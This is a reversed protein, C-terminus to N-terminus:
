FLHSESQSLLCKTFMLAFWLKRQVIFLLITISWSLMSRQQLIGNREQLRHSHRGNTECQVSNRRELLILFQFTVNGRRNEDATVLVKVPHALPTLKQTTERIFLNNAHTLPVKGHKFTTLNKNLRRSIKPLADISPQKYVSVFQM